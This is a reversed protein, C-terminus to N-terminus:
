LRQLFQEFKTGNGHKRDKIVALMREGWNM